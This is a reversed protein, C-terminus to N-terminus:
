SITRQAGLWQQWRRQQQQGRQRRRQQRATAATTKAVAAAVMKATTGAATATAMAAVVVAWGQQELRQNTTTNYVSPSEPLNILPCGQFVMVMGEMHIRWDDGGSWLGRWWCTSLRGSWHRAIIQDCHTFYQAIVFSSQSNKNNTFVDVTFIPAGLLSAGFKVYPHWIDIQGFVAARFL